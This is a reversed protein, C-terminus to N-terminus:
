FMVVGAIWLSVITTDDVSFRRGPTDIVDRHNPNPIGTVPQPGVGGNAVGHCPGSATADGKFDPNCLDSTTLLHSQNWTLGGGAHFKVYEGVQYTVNTQLGLSGYAQQDTIGTFYVKQSYDAVSDTSGGPGVGATYAGPNPNRLSSAQSSGLADFLESYERGESHYSGTVRGDIVLRQFADRREYPIVEAGMAFTGLLPPHNVLSGKLNTQGFDTNDHPFDALFWLGSYPEVYGFRRSFITHAAISTMGRSIGPDRNQTPNAPDPCQPQGAPPNANCAHLPTGIGFRGEIGIVWTPKTWDRQQNFIAYDLGASFWDIGSRSPSKFPVTFLQEGSPDQLRQPNNSSGNLDGLSSSDNLIVPLKLILALDHYLGIDAGVNLISTSESFSAVNETAPTFGGTSLGTQALDSERRINAHKWRQEFGLTLNLDFPDDKDFADVVSTIEATEQMMRPESAAVPEDARASGPLMAIGLPVCLLSLYRRM